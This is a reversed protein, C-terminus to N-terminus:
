GALVCLDKQIAFLNGKANVYPEKGKMQTIEDDGCLCSAVLLGALHARRAAQARMATALRYGCLQRAHQLRGLTRRVAAQLVAAGRTQLREALKDEQLRLQAQMQVQRAAEADRDALDDKGLARYAGSRHLLFRFALSQLPAVTDQRRVFVLPPSASASM